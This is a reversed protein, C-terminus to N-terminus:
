NARSLRIGYEQLIECSIELMESSVPFDVRDTIFIPPMRYREAASFKLFSSYLGISFWFTVSSM